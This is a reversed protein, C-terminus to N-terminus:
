KLGKKENFGLMLNMNQVAQGSAGKVLNDLASIVVLQNNEDSELGGIKCYNTEVVDTIEPTVDTVTVFPERKYFDRYLSLVDNAAIAEELLIHTTSILGRFANFVHPTFSLPTKIFQEIEHKHRHKTIKYPVLNNKLLSPNKAYKSEKGGGSWGSKCDFVIYKALKQVPLAALICATAYCGPNAVIRTAQKIEKRFLEPLGYVAEFRFDAGLDIIKINEDLQSAIQSAWGAPLALFVLDVDSKNIEQIPCNTYRLDSKFDPYFDSVNKGCHSHSNLFSLEVGDHRSLIKILEHGAYGSAGIVGVKKM